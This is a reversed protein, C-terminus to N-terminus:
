HLPTTTADKTCLRSDIIKSREAKFGLQLCSKCVLQFVPKTKNLKGVSSIKSYGFM